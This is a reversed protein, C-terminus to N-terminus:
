DEDKLPIFDDDDDEPRNPLADPTDEASSDDDTAVALSAPDAHETDECLVADEDLLPMVDDSGGDSASDAVAAVDAPDHLDSPEPDADFAEDSDPEPLPVPVELSVNLEKRFLQPSGAARTEADLSVPRKNPLPREARLEFVVDGVALKDGFKLVAQKAIRQGNVWVGNMSGLDRVVVRNDVVAVCCHKRSVKRSDTLVVDCSPHRGIVIVTQNIPITLGHTLGVLTARM